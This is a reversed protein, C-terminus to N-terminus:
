KGRKATTKKEEDPDDDGQFDRNFVPMIEKFFFGAYEDYVWEGVQEVTAPFDEKLARAGEKLGIWTMYPVDMPGISEMRKGLEAFTTANFEVCLKSMALGSFFIPRNQGGIKVTSHM